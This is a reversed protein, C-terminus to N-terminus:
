QKGEGGGRGVASNRFRWPPRIMEALGKYQDGAAKVWMSRHREVELIAQRQSQFSKERSLPDAPNLASSVRCSGISTGSWCRLWFLQRLIHQQSVSGVSARLTNIQSWAVNSDSGIRISAHGKYTALKAVM